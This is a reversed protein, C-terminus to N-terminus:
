SEYKLIKQMKIADLVMGGGNELVININKSLATKIFEFSLRTGDISFGRESFLVEFPAQTNTDFKVLRTKKKPAQVQPQPQSQPQAPQQQQVQQQESLDDFEFELYEDDFM